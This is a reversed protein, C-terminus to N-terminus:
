RASPIIPAETLNAFGSQHVPDLFGVFTACQILTAVASDKSTLHVDAVYVLRASDLRGVRPLTRSQEHCEGSEDNSGFRQRRQGCVEQVQFLM